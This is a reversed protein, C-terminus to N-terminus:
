QLHHAEHLGEASAAHRDQSGTDAHNALVGLHLQPGTTSMCFTSHCNGLRNYNAHSHLLQWSGAYREHTMQTQKTVAVESRQAHGCAQVVTAKAQKTHVAYSAQHALKWEALNETDEKAHFHAVAQLGVLMQPASLSQLAAFPMQKHNASCLLAVLLLAVQCRGKQAAQTEPLTTM